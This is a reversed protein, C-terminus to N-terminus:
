APDKALSALRKAATTFVLTMETMSETASGEGVQLMQGHVFHLAAHLAEEAHRVGFALIDAPLLALEASDLSKLYEQVASIVQGETKAARIARCAVDSSKM